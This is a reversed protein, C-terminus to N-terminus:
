RKGVRGVLLKKSVRQGLDHAFARSRKRLLGDLGFHLSTHASSTISFDVSKRHHGDSMGRHGRKSLVLCLSVFPITM